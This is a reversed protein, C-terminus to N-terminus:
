SAEVYYFDTGNLKDAYKTGAMGHLGIFNDNPPFHILYQGISDAIVHYGGGNCRVDHGADVAAKIDQITHLTRIAGQM